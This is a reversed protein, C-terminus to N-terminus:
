DWVWAVVSWNKAKKFSSEYLNVNWIFNLFEKSDYVIITDPKNWKQATSEITEIKYIPLSLLSLTHLNWLDLIHFLTHTVGVDM